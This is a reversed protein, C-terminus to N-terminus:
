SSAAGQPEREAMPQDEAEIPEAAFRYGIGYHTHVYAHASDALKERLKEVCVDVSRDRPRYPVGWVRQLLADRTMVRGQNEALTWLLRFETPTLRPDRQLGSAEDILLARQQDPDILLGAVRVPEARVSPRAAVSRRLAAQVRAVLEAMGFPKALYDDAGIELARVKDGESGRASIILIPVDLGEARARATLSWGDRTPLRLDVACADPRGFRLRRFGLEGDAAWEVDIGAQRLHASITRAIIADDEVILVLPM